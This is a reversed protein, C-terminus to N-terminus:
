RTLVRGTRWPQFKAPCGTRPAAVAIEDGLVEHVTGFQAEHVLVPPTSQAQATLPVFAALVALGIWGTVQKM